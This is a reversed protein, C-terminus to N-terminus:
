DGIFQDEEKWKTKDTYLKLYAPLKCLKYAADLHLSTATDPVLNAVQITSLYPRGHILDM